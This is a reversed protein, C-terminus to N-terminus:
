RPRVAATIIHRRKEVANITHKETKPLSTTQVLPKSHQSINRQWGHITLVYALHLQFVVDERCDNQLNVGPILEWLTKYLDVFIYGTIIIYEQIPDRM